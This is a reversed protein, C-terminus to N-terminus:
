RLNAVAHFDAYSSTRREAAWRLLSCFPGRTRNRASPRRALLPQQHASLGEADELPASDSPPSLRPQSLPLGHGLLTKTQHQSVSRDDTYNYCQYYSCRHGSPPLATYAPRHCHYRHYHPQSLLHHLTPGGSCRGPVRTVSQRGSYNVSYCEKGKVTM